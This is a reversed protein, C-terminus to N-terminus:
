APIKYTDEALLKIFFESGCDVPSDKEGLVNSNKHAIICKVNDRIVFKRAEEILEEKTINNDFALIIEVGLRELKLVQTESLEHGGISVSHKIGYSWSKQVSKEAEFVIVKGAEKIHEYTKDLGYLIQSKPAPVPFWYKSIRLKEHDLTTRGKVGVLAGLEDRIPITICNDYLSYGIEFLKQTDVSIGEELFTLNPHPIYMDLVGEDIKRLPVEDKSETTPEILDLFTLIPDINEKTMSHDSYYDYGCVECIFYMAKSFSLEKYHQM